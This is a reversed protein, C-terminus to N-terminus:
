QPKGNIRDAIISKRLNRKFISINSSTRVSYSLNNWLQISRWRFSKETTKLRPNTTELLFNGTKRIKESFYNEQKDNITRWLAMLTHYKSLESAFLWNCRNMLKATSTGRKLGTVFRATTNMIAQIKKMRCRPLGGWVPLMYQLRSLIVGNALTLRANTPLEKKLLTLAGLKQRVQSILPKEGTLLHPTWNLNDGLNMGLLKIHSVTQLIQVNKKEDLVALLPPNGSIKCKKQPVMTEMIQTKSQNVTLQNAQLHNAIQQLNIALQQQNHQRTAHRIVHTSDDAYAPTIGCQPCDNGFLKQTPGQTHQTNSCDTNKTVNSLENTYITFLAPGLVSGQPVGRSVAKMSSSQGSISVYQTRHELYSRIWQLASTDVNYIALKNLLLETEVSDFAASEDITLVDAIEREDAAEFLMDTIQLLTTTTSREKRYGHQNASWLRNNDFHEVIQSQITREALKSIVPLLSIPRYNKPILKDSSKGKYLPTVKGIRWKNIFKSCKISLNIVRTILPTLVDQALIISQNDINDHGFSSSKKLKRILNKINEETTEKFFLKGVDEKGVWNNMADTLHHLPDPLVKKDPLNGVLEKVKNVFYNNQIEALLKPSTIIKGDQLFSQPTGGTKWGLQKKTITYLRSIDGEKNCEDYKKAFYEKKDKKALLSCKNRSRKYLEWDEASGSSVAAARLNDRVLFCERSDKTIWSKNKNKPQVKIMPSVKDLIACINDQLYSCAIDPDETNYLPSWDVNRLLSCYEDTTVSMKKRFVSEQSNMIKKRTSLIAEIPNHDSFALNINRHNLLKQACNTWLQDILSSDCGPWFRTPGKIHQSFGQTIIINQLLSIYPAAAADPSDWKLLDVNLDGLVLCNNNSGARAWQTLTRTWRNLQAAQTSSSDDIQHLHRHERYIGGVILKKPGKKIIQMWIDSLDDMMHERLIKVTIGERILAIIRSYGLDQNERTLPYELSYGPIVRDVDPTSNDLNAETIFCIDPINENVLYQIDATKNAWKRNGLNWQM